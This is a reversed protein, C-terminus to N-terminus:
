REDGDHCRNSGEACMQMTSCTRRGIGPLAPALKSARDITGPLNPQDELALADELPLLTLECDTQAVFKVAADAVPQTEDPSPVEGAAAKARRFARWLTRRDKSASPRNRKEM